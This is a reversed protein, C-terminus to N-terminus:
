AAETITTLTMTQNHLDCTGSSYPSLEGYSYFGVQHAGDQLIDLTAELEEETRAGLVLRRGVCSIAISLVDSGAEPELLAAKAAKEAGGIVRDFNAQMLQAHHGQPIDGAFTMSQHQEDVSLITRVLPKDGAPARLALPFLLATAPLGSALSGLYKKYLALAPKGDLEYLINGESRTVEREPGFIDWGGKSGHGIRIDAGYFGVATVKGQQPKGDVLVWTREFRDGDGALGGSVPIATSLASNLGAALDSGNVSLGDSLVLVGALDPADLAAGLTEGACRSAGASIDAVALRVVTSAFDIVAVALSEDDVTAGHIEGSTSCGAIVSTPFNENLEGLAAPDDFFEPAGFVLVLTSPSDWSPFGTSWGGDSQYSM